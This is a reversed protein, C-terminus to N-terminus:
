ALVSKTEIQMPKRNISFLEIPVDTDFSSKEGTIAQALM